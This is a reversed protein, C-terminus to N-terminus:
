RTGRRTGGHDTRSVANWMMPGLPASRGTRGAPARSRGRRRRAPPGSSAPSGIIPLRDGLGQEKPYYVWYALESRGLARGVYAKFATTASRPRRGSCGRRSGPLGHGPPGLGHRLGRPRAAARLRGADGPRHAVTGDGDDPIRALTPDDLCDGVACSSLPRGAAARRRHPEGGGLDEGIEIRGLVGSALELCPWSGVWCSWGSSQSSSRPSPWGRATTASSGVARSWSSQVAFILGCSGPSSRAASSPWASRGAPWADELAASRGAPTGAAPTPRHFVPPASPYKRAPCRRSATSPALSTPEPLEAGPPTWPTTM